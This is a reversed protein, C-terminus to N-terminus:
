YSTTIVLSNIVGSHRFSWAEQVQGESDRLTLVVQGHRGRLQRAAVITRVGNIEPASPADVEVTVPLKSLDLFSSFLKKFEVARNSNTEYMPPVEAETRYGHCEGAVVVNLIENSQPTGIVLSRDPIESSLELVLSGGKGRGIKKNVVTYNGSLFAREGLLNVDLTDGPKLNTIVSKLVKKDM